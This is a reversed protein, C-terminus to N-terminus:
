MTSMANNLDGRYEIKMTILVDHGIENFLPELAVCAALTNIKGFYIMSM